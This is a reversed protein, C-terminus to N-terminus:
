PSLRNFLFSFEKRPERRRRRTRNRPAKVLGFVTNYRNKRDFCPKGVRYVLLAWGGGCIENQNGACPRDCNDAPGYVDYIDDCFCERMWQTGAYMYGAEQCIEHCMANTMAGNVVVMGPMARVRNDRFCGIKEVEALGLRVETPAIQVVNMAWGGGCTKTADGKCPMDCNDAPGYTDFRTGCFCEKSYQTAAYPFKENTCYENCSEVTNDDTTRMRGKMVRNRNDRWCGLDKPAGPLSNFAKFSADNKFLDSDDEESIKLRYGQHRIFHGPFNVAEFSYYGVFYKDARLIYTADEDYIHENRAGERKELDVLSNYHRLYHKPKDVSEFSVTGKEGTLGPNIIYFGKGNKTITGEIGKDNGFHYEPFNKSRIFVEGQRDRLADTKYVQNAWPGGCTRGKDAACPMNCDESTGYKDYENACFCHKAYQLGCFKFNAAACRKACVDITMENGHTWQGKMARQSRDAFCGIYEAGYERPKTHDEPNGVQYVQNAWAGGCAEAPEGAKHGPCPMDCNDAPGYKNFKFGCFCHSSYQLGAFPFGDNKCKETCASITMHNGNTWQGKMARQSKDRFCGIYKFADNRPRFIDAPDAVQYVQNAWGGGCTQRINAACDMDCNEVAGYRNYSYGCFCHRSYQLGAISFGSNTCRKTCTDINVDNGHTWKGKIARDHKDRFCGLYKPGAKEPATRDVPEGVQYVQNSWPGGCDRGKDAVCEMNCNNSEGYKNFSNGCFCHKSYQLGCYAYGAEKCRAACLDITMDNGHTWQGTIARDSKDAFCGLYKPGAQRPSFRVGLEGVQYVQNSWPGGCDRGKDGACEMYCNNSEGYKNYSNGCFCHKSYQLGCYAYGAERCRAACLNITMDDGHTWQRKIARDKKDAFCGLYKPGAQRPSTRVGPEGVQYVQNAWSGGCDQQADAVCEMNCNNSEGYKNFSNGCFCHKSYQLGCYAYGADKCRNACLDITMDNGHTWQGKIARDQKDEFCGLYKPGAQRPSTRDRPEGTRYVQNAWSGGCTEKKDGACEMNCKNSMGYEDYRDSACFCQKGYQLAAYKFDKCIKMCKRLTMTQRSAFKGRMAREKQDKFCGIYDGPAPKEAADTRYVQNAWGGGCTEKEDGACPMKCNDSRGYKNYGGNACFCQKGYQLAAYKFDKCIRLCMKLTLDEKSVFKKNLAREKQDKFCGVYNDPTKSRWKTLDIGQIQDCQVMKSSSANVFADEQIKNIKDGNDCLVKSLTVKELEKVQKKTFIGDNQYWFRDGDRLVKFQELLVCRFTKGVRGGKFPKEAMGGAWLDVNDPHGYLDKLKEIVGKSMEGELDSWEVAEKLGCHKRVSNYTPLGHDRGRQINLAGLDFAIKNALAFLKETVESTMIDKPRMQKASIGYLGRLVPDVGGEKELRWPSFFAKHLEINGEPIVELNEDLRWLMPRVLGHGFRFCSAAFENFITPDTKSNFGKYKGMDKLAKPGLIKPLWENYTIMQHEAGVIKRAEQYLTEDDADPMVERLEDVLRNHERMWITHVAILGLQENVRADGALFCPVDTNDNEQLCSDDEPNPPLLHKGYKSLSGVKLYGKDGRLKENEEPTSGYVNSADIYATLANFQQRQYRTGPNISCTAASRTFGMCKDAPIRTDDSPTPIPFCPYTNECTEECSESHEFDMSSVTEPSLTLDHDLFQGLQMLMESYIKDEPVSNSSLLHISVSRPSPLRHGNFLMTRNWGRPENVNNEYAQPVLRNFPALVAGKLPDDRHNCTGDVSRYKNHFDDSCDVKTAEPDACGALRLLRAKQKKSLDDYSIGHRKLEALTQEVIEAAASQDKAANSNLRRLARFLSAPTTKRNPKNREVESMHIGKMVKEKGHESAEEVQEMDPKKDTRYVQLAWGGGCTEDKNGGCPMKCNDYAGYMDYANNACFCQKSYQLGTYKFDKCIEMCKEITMDGSTKSKGSMAREKRDRFCGIYQGPAAEEAAGTSYVQLAWGGGCTEDKNGGCPMKCNDYAGYKAFGDNACFCQKSYQLGVYKFGECIKMCMEITMDGRSASKGSMAREKKDKFCGMFEGPAKATVTGAAALLLLLAPSLWM